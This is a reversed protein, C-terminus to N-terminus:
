LGTLVKLQSSIDCCIKLCLCLVEVMRACFRMAEYRKIVCQIICIIFFMISKIDIICTHNAVIFRDYFPVKKRWCKMMNEIINTCFM